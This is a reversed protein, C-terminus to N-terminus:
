YADCRPQYPLLTDLISRVKGSTVDTHAGTELLLTQYSLHVFPEGHKLPAVVVHVVVVVVM